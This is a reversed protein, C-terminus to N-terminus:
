QHNQEPQKENVGATLPCMGPPPRAMIGVICRSSDISRQQKPTPESAPQEFAPPPETRAEPAQKEFDSVDIEDRPPEVRLECTPCTVAVVAHLVVNGISVINSATSDTTYVRWYTTTGESTNCYDIPWPAM